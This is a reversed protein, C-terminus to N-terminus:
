GEFSLSYVCFEEDRKWGLTKYLRQAPVNTIATSLELRVAGAARGTEAATKLLLSGVGRRRAPPSVFLDNLMYIPAALVSCFSPFLQAFGIAVGHSDEAILVVSEGRSIRDAMFQRALLLDSVEGYFQRYGDFLPVLQDLDGVTARRVTDTMISLFSAAM